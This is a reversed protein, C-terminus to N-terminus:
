DITLGGLPSSSNSVASSLSMSAVGGGFGRLYNESERFATILFGTALHVVKAPMNLYQSVKETSYKTGLKKM